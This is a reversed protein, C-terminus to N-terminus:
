NILKSQQEGPIIIIRTSTEGEPNGGGVNPIAAMGQAPKGIDFFWEPRKRDGAPRVVSVRSVRTEERNSIYGVVLPTAAPPIFPLDSSGSMLKQSLDTKNGHVCCKGTLKKFWVLAAEEVEMLTIDTGPVEIFRISKSDESFATRAGEVILDHIMSAM